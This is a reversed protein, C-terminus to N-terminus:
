HSSAGRINCIDLIEKSLEENEHRLRENEETAELLMELLEQRSSKRLRKSDM